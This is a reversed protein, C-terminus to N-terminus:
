QSSLKIAFLIKWFAPKKAKQVQFDLGSRSATHCPRFIFSIFVILKWPENEVLTGSIYFGPLQNKSAFQKFFM